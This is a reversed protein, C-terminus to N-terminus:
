REQFHQVYYVGFSPAALWANMAEEDLDVTTEKGTSEFVFKAQQAQPDFTVESTLSSNPFYTIPEKSKDPM